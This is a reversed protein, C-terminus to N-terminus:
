PDMSNVERVQSTRPTRNTQAKSMVTYEAAYLTQTGEGNQDYMDYGYQEPLLPHPPLQQPPPIYHAQSQPPDDRPPMAQVRLNGQPPKPHGTTPPRASPLPPRESADPKIAPNRPKYPDCLPTHSHRRANDPQYHVKAESLLCQQPELPTTHSYALQTDNALWPHKSDFPRTTDM